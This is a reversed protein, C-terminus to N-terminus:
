LRQIKVPLQGAPLPMPLTNIAFKNEGPGSAKVEYNRLLHFLFIKVQMDAFKFGLCKHAGGGFPFWQFPHGRHEAREPLWRDPDFKDPETWYQSSRHIHDVPIHILTNAPIKQGKFEFANISRRPILYVAPFLRLTERFVRDCIDLEAVQAFSLTESDIAQLEARMAQQWQPHECLMTMM